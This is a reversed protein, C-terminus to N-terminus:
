ETDGGKKGDMLGKEALCEVEDKDICKAVRYLWFSCWGFNLFAIGGGVLVFIATRRDNIGSPSEHRLPSIVHLALGVIFTVWSYAMLMLPNQFIYIMKLSPRTKDASDNNTKRKSSGSTDTSSAPGKKGDISVLKLIARSNRINVNGSLLFSDDRGMLTHILASHQAATILSLIALVLSLYWMSFVVWMSNQISQWSFAGINAAASLTSQEGTLLTMFREFGSVALTIFKVEHIKGQIFIETKRRLKDGDHRMKM